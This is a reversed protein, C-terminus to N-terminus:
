KKTHFTKSIIELKMLAILKDGEPFYVSNDILYAIKQEKDYFAFSAFAGGTCNTENQWKGFLKFGNFSEFKYKQQIVDKLYFEDGEYYKKGIMLRKNRLWEKNVINEPMKEWYIGLFRDPYKKVRLLYSVFNSEDDRKFTIYGKPLKLEWPYHEREYEMEKKNLGTKYVLRKLRQMRRNQFVEFIRTINEFTYLLVSEVDKGIVFIVTQNQVWLDKTAIMTASLSDSITAVKDPLLKKVYESVPKNSHVDCFFLLNAFKYNQKIAAIKKRELTFYKENSTTYFMRELNEHLKLQGYDWIQNDAFAYIDNFKGWSFPKHINPRNKDSGSKGCGFLTILILTLFLLNRIKM